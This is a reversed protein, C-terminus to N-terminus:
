ELLNFISPEDFATEGQAGGASGGAHQQGESAQGLPAALSLLAQPGLDGLSQRAEARRYARDRGALDRDGRMVKMQAWLDRVPNLQVPCHPNAAPVRTIGQSIRWGTFAIV